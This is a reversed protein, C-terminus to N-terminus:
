VPAKSEFRARTLAWVGACGAGGARAGGLARCLRPHRRALARARRCRAARWVRARLLAGGRRGKEGCVCKCAGLVCAACGVARPRVRQTCYPDAAAFGLYNYSGLNLCRRSADTCRLKAASARGGPEAVREVVDIWADPASCIPRNFVDHIRMYMRRTYFDEYDKCLPAYGKPPVGDSSASGVLTRWFDRAHGFVYMLAFSIYSTVAIYYPMIPERTSAGVDMGSMAGPAGRAPSLLVARLPSSDAAASIVHCSLLGIPVVVARAGRGDARPPPRPARHRTRTRAHADRRPAAGRALPASAVV